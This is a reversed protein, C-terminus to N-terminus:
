SRRLKHAPLLDKLAIEVEKDDKPTARMFGALENEQVYKPVVLPVSTKAKFLRQKIILSSNNEDAEDAFQELPQLGILERQQNTLPLDKCQDQPRILRVANVVIIAVLIWQLDRIHAYGVLAYSYITQFEQLSYLKTWITNRYMQNEDYYAIKYLQYLYEGSLIIMHFSFLRALNTWLTKFQQEKNVQRNLAELIVPSTWEGSPADLPEDDHNKDYICQASSVIIPNKNKQKIRPPIFDDLLLPGGSSLSMVLVEDSEPRKENRTTEFLDKHPPQDRQQHIENLQFAAPGIPVLSLEEFFKYKSARNNSSEVGVPDRHTQIRTINQRADNVSTNPLRRLPSHFGGLTTDLGTMFTEDETYLNDHISSKFM